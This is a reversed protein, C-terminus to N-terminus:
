CPFYMGSPINNFSKLRSYVHIHEGFEQTDSGSPM